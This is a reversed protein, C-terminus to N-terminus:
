GWCSSKGRRGAAREQFALAHRQMVLGQRWGGYAKFPPEEHRETQDWARINGLCLSQRVGSGYMRSRVSDTRVDEWPEPGHPELLAPSPRRRPRRPLPLPATATPLPAPSTATRANTAQSLARPAPTASPATRGRLRMIARIVPWADDPSDFPLPPMVRQWHGSRGCIRLLGWGFFPPHWSLLYLRAQNRQSNARELRLAWSPPTLWARVM